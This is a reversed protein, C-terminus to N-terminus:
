FKEQLGKTIETRMRTPQLELSTKMNGMHVIERSRTHIYQKGQGGHGDTVNEVPPKYAQTVSLTRVSHVRSVDILM